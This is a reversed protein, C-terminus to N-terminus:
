HWTAWGDHDCCRRRYLFWWVWWGRPDDLRGTRPLASSSKACICHHTGQRSGGLGEDEWRSDYLQHRLYGPQFPRLHVIHVADWFFRSSYIHVYFVVHDKQHCSNSTAMIHAVEHTKKSRTPAFGVACRSQFCDASDPKLLQLIKWPHASTITQEGLIELAAWGGSIVLDWHNFKWSFRTTDWGKRDKGTNVKGPDLGVLMWWGYTVEDVLLTMAGVELAEIINAAQSTSGSADGTSFETTAKRTKKWGSIQSPLNHSFCNLIPRLMCAFLILQLCQDSLNM